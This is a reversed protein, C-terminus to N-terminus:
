RVCQHMPVPKITFSDDDRNVLEVSRRQAEYLFGDPSPGTVQALRPTISAIRVVLVPAHEVNILMRMDATCKLKGCRVSDADRDRVRADLQPEEQVEM